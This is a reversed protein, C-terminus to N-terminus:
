GMASKGWHYEYLFFDDPIGGRCHHSNHNSRLHGDDIFKFKFSVDNAPLWGFNGLIMDKLETDVRNPQQTYRISWSKLYSKYRDATDNQRRDNNVPHM